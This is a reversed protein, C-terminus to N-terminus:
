CLRQMLPQGKPPAEAGVGKGNDRRPQLGGVHDENWVRGAPSGSLASTTGGMLVFLLFAVASANGLEVVSAKRTILYLVSKHKGRGARPRVYPEAFLQFYGAM